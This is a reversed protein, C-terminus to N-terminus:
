PESGATNGPLATLPEAKVKYAKGDKTEHTVNTKILEAVEATIGAQALYGSIKALQADIKVRIGESTGQTGKESAKGQTRLRYDHIMVDLEGKAAVAETLAKQAIPDNAAQKKRRDVLDDFKAPTSKVMLVAKTGDGDFYLTHTEGNTTKFENKTQWWGAVAGAVQQGKGVLFAAGKKIFEIVKDIGKDVVGQIKTIVKKVAGGVDPLHLLRELFTLIVPITNALSKEVMGAAADIAGAAISAMSKAITSVLDIIEKAKEIFTKITAYIGELATLFGGGPIFLTVLKEIAAKVVSDKIWDRLMGLVTDRLNGLHEKLNEWLAPIGGTMLAKVMEFGEEIVKVAPEGMVTVLKGRIKQYSLGLIQSAISFIGAIDWKAPLQIGAKAMPGLIWKIFAEKLYVLIKDKFAGFGKGLAAILNKVFGIPNMLVGMFAQGAGKLMDLLAQGNEKGIVTVILEVIQHGAGKTFEVIRDFIPGFVEKIVNLNTSFSHMISLRDWATSLLSKVGSWTINLKALAGQLWAWVKPLAGSQNIADFIQAGVIPILELVGQLYNTPNREVKDDLIPNYGIIVTMLTYGPINRLWENIDKAFPIWSRQVAGPGQSVQVPALKRAPAAGQQMVHTLEHALLKKGGQTGPQYQNKNFYLNKGHAFAHSGLANNMQVSDQGTHIRVDKFDAGMRSEFFERHEDNMYESGSPPNKLKSEVMDPVHTKAADHNLRMVFPSVQHVGNTDAMQKPAVQMSMVKEAVDDAEKEHKDGPQSMPMKAQVVVSPTQSKKPQVTPTATEKQKATHVVSTNVAGIGAKGTKGAQHEDKKQQAYYAAAETHSMRVQRSVTKGDPLKQVMQVPVFNMYNVGGVNSVGSMTDGWRYVENSQAAEKRRPYDTVKETTEVQINTKSRHLKNAAEAQVKKAPTVVNEAM